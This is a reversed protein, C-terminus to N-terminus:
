SQFMAVGFLGFEKRFFELATEVSQFNLPKGNDDAVTFRRYPEGITMKGITWHKGRPAIYWGLRWNRAIDKAVTLEIQMLDHHYPELASLWGDLLSM